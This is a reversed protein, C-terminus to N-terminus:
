RFIWSEPRYWTTGGFRGDANTSLPTKKLRSEDIDNDLLAFGDREAIFYAEDISRKINM